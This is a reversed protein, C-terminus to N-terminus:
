RDSYQYITSLYLLAAPDDKMSRGTATIETLSPTPIYVSGSPEIMRPQESITLAATHMEPQKKAQPRKEYRIVTDRITRTRFVTDVIATQPGNKGQSGSSVEEQAPWIAFFLAVTAAVATLAQYLPVPRKWFPLAQTEEVILPAPETDIDFLHPAEQLMRRQLRYEEETCFERVLLQEEATLEAFDKSELLALFREENYNLEQDM